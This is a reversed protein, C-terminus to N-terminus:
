WEWNHHRIMSEDRVDSCKMIRTFHTLEYVVTCKGDLEEYYLGSVYMNLEMYRVHDGLHFRALPLM